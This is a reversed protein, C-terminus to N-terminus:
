SDASLRHNISKLSPYLQKYSEFQKKYMATFQQRPQYVKAPSQVRKIAEQANPYLGLGLGAVLAAGLPSGDANELVAVPLGLMDAKNQIWFTNRSVGGTVTVRECSTHLSAQMVELIHLFQYNLGEIVARLLDTRTTQGTIGAFAGRSLPDGIPCGAASLHPLYLVPAQQPKADTLDRLLFDWADNSNDTELLADKGLERRFWELSEGAVAGGWAVYPGPVVHSQVCVEAQHLQPTLVPKPIAMQVCEWTGIIDLVSGPALLGASLAACIHDHGGLVVPTGVPIGTAAAAQATLPGLVTGNPLIEPLLGADLGSAEILEASWQKRTQDMLLMCSAMTPETAMKGSLKFNIYDEILLWKHTRPLIEPENEKIWLMRMAACIPWSQFGTIGFTREAGVQDKWWQAQDTTRADHWSIFPYLAQGHQDVPVGDMGMGTVAVGRLTAPDGLAAMAEKAATGVAQWIQDPDWIVWDPHGDPTKKETPQSASAKVQGDLDFVMAKISTSGLDIAMLTDM